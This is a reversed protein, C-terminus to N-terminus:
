IQSLELSFGLLRLHIHGVSELMYLSLSLDSYPLCDRLFLHFLFLLFQPVGACAMCTQTSSWSDLLGSGVDACVAAAQCLHMTPGSSIYSPGVFPPMLGGVSMLEPRFLSTFTFSLVKFCFFVRVSPSLSRRLCSVCIM